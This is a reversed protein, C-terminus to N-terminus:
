VQEQKLQFYPHEYPRDLKISFKVLVRKDDPVNQNIQVPWAEPLYYLMEDLFFKVYPPVEGIKQGIYLINLSTGTYNVKFNLPLHNEPVQQNAVQIQPFLKAAQSHPKYNPELLWFCHYFNVENPLIQPFLDFGNISVGARALYDIESADPELGVLQYEKKRTSDNPLKINILQNIREDNIVKLKSELEPNLKNLPHLQYWNKSMKEQWSIQAVPRWFNHHSTGLYLAKIM